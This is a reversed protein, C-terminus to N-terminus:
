GLVCMNVHVGALIVNKIGREELVNWVEDGKDSIFDRKEDIQILDAQAKWPMKPNRGEAALKAAWDAHEKLDDDEGGDSQDIPYVTQEESPIRNCWSQIDKPLPRNIPMEIVRKRAPHNEYAAMCDSPSHIVTVGRERLEKVVKNLRPGFEE